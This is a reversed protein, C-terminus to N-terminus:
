CAAGGAMAAAASSSRAPHAPVTPVPYVGREGAWARRWSALREECKGCDAVFQNPEFLDNGVVGSVGCLAAVGGTRVDEASLIFCHAMQGTSRQRWGLRVTIVENNKAPSRRPKATM